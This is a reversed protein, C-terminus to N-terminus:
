GKRGYISRDIRGTRKVNIAWGEHVLRNHLMPYGHRCQQGALEKLRQRLRDNRDDAPQYRMCSASVGVLRLAQRESLGRDRLELVVARRAAVAIV